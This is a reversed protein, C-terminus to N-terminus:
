VEAPMPCERVKRRYIKDKVKRAIDRLMPDMKKPIHHYHRYEYALRVPKVKKPDPDNLILREMWEAIKKEDAKQKGGMQTEYITDSAKKIFKRDDSRKKIIADFIKYQEYLYLTEIHNILKRLRVSRRIAESYELVKSMYICPLVSRPDSGAIHLRLFDHKQFYNINEREERPVSVLVTSIGKYRLAKDLAELMRLGVAKRRMSPKVAISAIHIADRNAGDPIALLYGVIEKDTRVFHDVSIKPLITVKEKIIKNNEAVLFTNSFIESMKAIMTQTYQSDLSCEKVLSCVNEVDPLQITRIVIGDDIKIGSKRKSM